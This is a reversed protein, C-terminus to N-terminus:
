WSVPPSGGLENITCRADHVRLSTCSTQQGKYFGAVFTVEFRDLTAAYTREGTMFAESTTEAIPTPVSEAVLPWANASDAREPVLPGRCVALLPGSSSAVPSSAAGREGGTAGADAVDVPARRCSACALALANAFVAAVAAHAQM